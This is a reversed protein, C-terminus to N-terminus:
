LLNKLHIQNWSTEMSPALLGLLLACFWAVILTNPLPGAPLGNASHCLPKAGQVHGKM